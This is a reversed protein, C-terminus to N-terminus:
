SLPRTVLSFPAVLPVLLVLGDVVGSMGCMLDVFMDGTKDLLMALV